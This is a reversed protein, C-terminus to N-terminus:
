PRAPRALVNASHTFNGAELLLARRSPFPRGTREDCLTYGLDELADALDWATSGAAFLNDQSFEILLLPRHRRLTEAAGALFRPEHGDIDVKIVDLRDEGGGSTWRRWWGDLTTTRVRERGGPAKAGTWHMTASAEGQLLEAEGDRDSLAVREMVVNAAGNAEIHWALREAFRRSPEFAIVRGEPGVLRSLHLTFYGFNAGVDVAVMGPRVERELLRVAHPEWPEGAALQRDVYSSLDLRFRFGFRRVELEGGRPLRRQRWRRWHARARVAIRRPTM